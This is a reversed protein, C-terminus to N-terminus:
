ESGNAIDSFRSDGRLNALNPDGALLAKPFGLQVATQLSVFAQTTNGARNHIIGDYYHAYPDDPMLETARDIFRRAEDHERLGAKIWAMDMITLPDNPNVELARAAMKEAEQLAQRAEPLRGAAWLTDGLNARTLLDNPQLEVASRQSEVAADYDGSYLQMLGLNSYASRTPKIDIARQFYRAASAFNGQMMYTSALNTVYKADNPRLAFAYEFQAVAEEFRGKQFHFVGLSNFSSANGPYVDTARRLINEAELPQKLHQYAFGLGQLADINASDNALATLYAAEADNHRGTSMYLDGLSTHVIDLNPNLALATACCSEAREIYSPDDMEDYGEVYLACKGAHAAAYEPDVNLAADFWSLASAISDITTPQRSSEIGHRYLVYANLSPAEVVKLSSPQLDPPLSVRVNAVTLSTIEDRLDFFDDRTRDFRRSLIHFGDESNILQVTARMRNASMEVSGELYLEVRLRDRVEQSPTNPALTYSDGRSAVRLGPVRSLYTIVDEVLADAFLQTENSGDLNVFPLVALSNEVVTPLTLQHDAIATVPTEPAPLGIIRDYVYVMFAAIALSSVVSLYTRSFRRRRLDSASLHDVVAHGHHFELFWSLTIAIPFGAIVLVTVFTGAWQPFHLQAFVIDGIQILLWGVILYALATEFVGRRKLNEFLGIDNVSVGGKAGIIISSEDLIAPTPEVVLRYGRRPLTQIFVPDDVQDDLAHRIEGVAHSLAEHSGSDAGWADEILTQRTVLEGPTRALCLLVEVAKPPLHRPGARGIVQGKLPEVVLDGLYFGQLLDANL